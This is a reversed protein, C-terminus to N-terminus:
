TQITWASVAATTTTYWGYAQTAYPDISPIWGTRERGQGDGVPEFRYTETQECTGGLTFITKARSSYKIFDENTRIPVLLGWRIGSAWAWGFGCCYNDNIEILNGAFRDMEGFSNIWRDAKPNTSKCCPKVYYLM